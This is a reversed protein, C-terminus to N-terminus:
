AGTYDNYSSYYNQVKLISSVAGVQSSLFGDFIRGRLTSGSVKM